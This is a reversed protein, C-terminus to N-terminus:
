EILQYTIGFISEDSAYEAVLRNDKKCIIVGVTKNM